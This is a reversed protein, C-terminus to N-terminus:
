RDKSWAYSQVHNGFKKLDSCFRLRETSEMQVRECKKTQQCVINYLEDDLKLFIIKENKMSEIRGYPCRSGSKWDFSYIKQDHELYHYLCLNNIFLEKNMKKPSYYAELM